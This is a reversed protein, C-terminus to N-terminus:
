AKYIISRKVIKFLDSYFNDSNEFDTRASHYNLMMRWAIKRPHSIVKEERTIGAYYSPRMKGSLSFKKRIENQDNQVNRGQKKLENILVSGIPRTHRMSIADIVAGTMKGTQELNGWVLDLGFGSPSIPFSPLMRKVVDKHLCPAMVEVFNTFRLKFSTAQTLGMFTFFSDPSLSPQCIQLNHQKAIAFLKDVQLGDILVDDDPLWIREYRQYDVQALALSISDWKGGEQYVAQVGESPSFADYANKSYFSIFTDFSREQYPLDLWASHLSADGARVIVLNEKGM